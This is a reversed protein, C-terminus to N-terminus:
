RLGAIHGASEFDITIELPEDSRNLLAVAKEPSNEGGLDKVWTEGLLVGM